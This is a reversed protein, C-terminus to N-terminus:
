ILSHLCEDGPVGGAVERRFIPLPEQREELNLPLRVKHLCATAPEEIINCFRPADLDYAVCFPCNIEGPPNEAEIEFRREDLGELPGPAVVGPVCGTSLDVVGTDPRPNEIQGPDRGPDSEVSEKAKFM